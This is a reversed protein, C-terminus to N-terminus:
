RERKGCAPCSPSPRIPVARFSGELVDVTLLRDSLLEGKGLVWKVAEAAQISGVIGAVAGFVGEGRCNTVTGAPPPEPFVCRLCLSGPIHTFAQGRFGAVAGHAFPKGAAVCADNVAFRTEFNDSGDILFDYDAILAAASERTVRVPLAAVRIDPNIAAMKERASEAKARGIDATSHAIQRQLNGVEVRDDDAIGITGVGAAALYLAAPSGLGGAGVILVKAALLKRQGEGGVDKLVIHHLYREIQAETLDM